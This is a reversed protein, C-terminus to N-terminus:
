PKVAAPAPTPTPAPRDSPSPYYGEKAIVTLGGRAVRVEVKRYKGDLIPEHSYYGVTYQTRVEETIKAFSQQIGRPRFEPDVQGGTAAAYQPLIDNRMTMPLHIRDLFGVGPISTDGVITAYVAVKNTQLYRIVDKMKATSGSEKGDSIVFVVRRRGRGAKATERAATLIADNLTHFEREPKDFGHKGAYSATNPDVNMNNKFNTQALPGGLPMLPERGPSKAQELEQTLRSSQAATFQGNGIMKVSNNYTFVAVEDYPTFAGQLARLSDNIKEMTQFPVSQDIVIAVSLPFPDTTFVVPKQRLNNEYVSVDRGTIGPVLAGHSDKVTFPVEVFNVQVRLPTLMAEAEGAAPTPISDDTAQQAQPTPSPTSPLSSPVSDATTAPAAPAPASPAAPAVPTITNLTPLTQPKPGDPLATQSSTTTKQDQQQAVAMVGVAMAAAAVAVRVGKNGTGFQM